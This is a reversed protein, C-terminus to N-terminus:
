AFTAKDVGFHRHFDADSLYTERKSPDLNLKKFDNVVQELSYSIFTDAYVPDTVAPAEVKEVGEVMRMTVKLENELAGFLFSCRIGEYVLYHCQEAKEVKFEM